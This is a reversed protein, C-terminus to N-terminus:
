LITKDTEYNNINLKTSELMKEIPTLAELMDELKKRAKDKLINCFPSYQSYIKSIQIDVDEKILRDISPIDYCSCRGIINALEEDTMEVIVYMKSNEERTKAIVKM